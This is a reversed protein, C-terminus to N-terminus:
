KKTKIEEKGLIVVEEKRYGSGTFAGIFIIGYRAPLEVFVRSKEPNAPSKILTFLLGAAAERHINRSKAAFRIEKAYLWTAGSEISSPFM